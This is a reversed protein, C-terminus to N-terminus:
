RAGTFLHIAIASAAAVNLSQVQGGGQIRAVIECAALTARDLGNEENGLVLAVPKDRPVQTLPRAQPTLATAVVRFHPALSPLAQPLRQIRVLELHDLGGEAIRYAADSPLAQAPHDSLLLHQVGFFAATRAIAGLNHPNSIGDLVVILRERQAWQAAVAPDFGAITKPRAVAVVGGHMASAAIRALEEDAVVRFPKRARALVATIPSLASQHEALFFLREIRDADRAFLAQVAHLGAVRILERAHQGRQAPQQPRDRHQQHPPKAGERRHRPVRKM